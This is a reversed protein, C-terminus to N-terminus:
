GRLLQVATGGDYGACFAPYWRPIRSDPGTEHAADFVAHAIWGAALLRRGGAGSRRAATASAAGFLVLAAAERVVHGDVAPGRTSGASRPVGPPAAAVRGAVAPRGRGAGVRALPYIAAAAVLGAAHLAVRAGPSRRAAGDVLLAGAWGAAAPAAHRTLDPVVTRV